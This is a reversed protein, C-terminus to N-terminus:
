AVKTRLESREATDERPPQEQEQPARVSQQEAEVLGRFGRRATVITAPLVFPLLTIVVPVSTSTGGPTSSLINGGFVGVFLVALWMTM